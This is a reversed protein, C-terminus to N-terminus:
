FCGDCFDGGFAIVSRNAGDYRFARLKLVFTILRRRTATVHLACSIPFSLGEICWAFGCREYVEWIHKEWDGFASQACQGCFQYPLAVIHALASHTSPLGGGAPSCWFATTPSPMPMPLLCSTAAVNSAALTDPARQLLNTSACGLSSQLMSSPWTRAPCGM